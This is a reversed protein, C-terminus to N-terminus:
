PVLNAIICRELYYRIGTIKKDMPYVVPFLIVDGPYYLKPISYKTVVAGEIYM